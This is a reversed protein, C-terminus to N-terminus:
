PKGLNVLIIIVVYYRFEVKSISIMNSDRFFSLLLLLFLHFSFLFVFLLFVFLFLLLMYYGRKVDGEKM